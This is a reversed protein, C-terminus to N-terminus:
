RRREGVPCRPSVSPAFGIVRFIMVDLAQTSRPGRLSSRSIVVGHDTARHPRITDRYTIPPRTDPRLMCDSGNVTAPRSCRRGASRASGARIVTPDRFWSSRLFAPNRRCAPRPAGLASLKQKDVGSWRRTVATVLPSPAAHPLEGWTTGLRHVDPHAPGPFSDVNQASEQACPPKTDLRRRGVTGSTSRATGTPPESNPGRRARHTLMLPEPLGTGNPPEALDGGPGATPARRYFSCM